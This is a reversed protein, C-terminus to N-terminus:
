EIALMLDGRRTGRELLRSRPLAELQRATSLRSQNPCVPAMESAETQSDSANWGRDSDSKGEPYQVRYLLLRHEGLDDAWRSGAAHRSGPEFGQPRFCTRLIPLHKSGTRLHQAPYVQSGKQAPSRLHCAPDGQSDSHSLLHHSCM